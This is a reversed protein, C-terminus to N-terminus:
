SFLGLLTIFFNRGFRRALWTFNLCLLVSGFGVCENCTINMDVNVHRIMNRAYLDLEDFGRFRKM